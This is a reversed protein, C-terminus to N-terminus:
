PLFFFLFMNVYKFFVVDLEEERYGDGGYPRPPGRQWGYRGHRGGGHLSAGSGGRGGRWGGRARGRHDREASRNIWEPGVNLRMGDGEDSARRKGKINEMQDVVVKALKTYFGQQPHVPDAGWLEEKEMGLMVHTPNMVVARRINDAFLFSRFNKRMEELDEVLANQFGPESKNTLHDGSECCSAGVYRLMPKLHHRGSSDRTQLSISGDLQRGQYLLNDLM